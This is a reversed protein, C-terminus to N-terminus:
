WGERSWLGVRGNVWGGIARKSGKEYQFRGKPGKFLLSDGVEAAALVQSM